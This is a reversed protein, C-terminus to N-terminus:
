QRYILILILIDLKPFTVPILHGFTDKLSYKMNKICTYVCIVTGIYSYSMNIAITKNFWYFSVVLFQWVGQAYPFRPPLGPFMKSEVFSNPTFKYLGTILYVIIFTNSFFTSNM